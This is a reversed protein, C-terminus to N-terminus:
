IHILSLTGSQVYVTNEKDRKPLVNSVCEEACYQHDEWVHYLTELISTSEDLFCIKLENKTDESWLVISGLVDYGVRLIM